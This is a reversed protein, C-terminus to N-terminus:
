QIMAVGITMLINIDVSLALHEQKIAQFAHEPFFLDLAELTFEKGILGVPFLDYLRSFYQQLVDALRQGNLLQAPLYGDVFAIQFFPELFHEAGSYEIKVLALSHLVGAVQEIFFAQTDRLDRDHETIRGDRMERCGEFFMRAQFGALQQEM